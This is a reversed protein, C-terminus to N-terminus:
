FNDCQNIIFRMIFHWMGRNLQKEQRKVDHWEHSCIQDLRQRWLVRDETFFTMIETLCRLLLERLELKDLMLRCFGVRLESLIWPGRPFTKYSFGLRVRSYGFGASWSTRRAPSERSPSVKTAAAEHKKRGSLEETTAGRAHRQNWSSLMNYTSYVLPARIVLVIHAQIRSLSPSLASRTYPAIKIPSPAIFSVILQAIHSIPWLSFHARLFSKQARFFTIVTRDVAISCTIGNWWGEIAKKKVHM